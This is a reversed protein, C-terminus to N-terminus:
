RSNFIQRDDGGRKEKKLGKEGKSIRDFSLIIKFINISISNEKKYIYIYISSLPLQRISIMLIIALSLLITPTLLLNPLSPYSADFPINVRFLLPPIFNELLFFFIPPQYPPRLLKFM